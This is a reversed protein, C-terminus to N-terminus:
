RRSHCGDWYLQSNKKYFEFLYTVNLSVSTTGNNLNDGVEYGDIGVEFINKLKRWIIANDSLVEKDQERDNDKIVESALKVLHFEPDNWCSGQIVRDKKVKSMKWKWKIRGNGGLDRMFCGPRLSLWEYFYDSFSSNVM